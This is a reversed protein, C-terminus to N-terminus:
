KKRSEKHVTHKRLKPCYKRLELRQTDAPTVYIRAVGGRPYTFEIQQADASSKQIVPVQDGLYKKVSFYMTGGTLDKPDSDDDTVTVEIIKTSGRIITVSNKPDLYSM